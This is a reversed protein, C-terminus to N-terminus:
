RPLESSGTQVPPDPRYVLLDLKEPFRTEPLLRRMISLVNRRVDEVRDTTLRDGVVKGVYQDDGLKCLTLFTTDEASVYRRDAATIAAVDIDIFAPSGATIHTSMSSIATPSTSVNQTATM